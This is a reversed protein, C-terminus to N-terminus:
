WDELDGRRKRGGSDSGRCQDCLNWRLDQRCVVIGVPEVLKGCDLKRSADDAFTSGM